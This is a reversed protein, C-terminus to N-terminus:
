KFRARFLAEATADSKHKLHEAMLDGKADPRKAGPKLVPPIDRAKAKLESKGKQLADYKAAKESQEQILMVLKPDTLNRLTELRVGKDIALRTIAAGMEDGWGKLEKRLVADMEARQQALLAHRTEEIVAEVSDAKRAAEAHNIRATQHDAALAAYEGPNDRRITKWDLAEFQKLQSELLKVEAKAEAFKDAGEVLKEAKEQLAVAQKKVAATENMARSYDQQRDYGKKVEPLVKVVTGDSLELEVLQEKPEDDEAPEGEDPEADDDAKPEDDAEPTEPEAADAAFQAAFAAAALDESSELNQPEATANGTAPNLTEISM